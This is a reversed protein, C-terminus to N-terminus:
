NNKFTFKSVLSNNGIKYLIYDIRQGNPDGETINRYSNRSNDYTGSLELKNM